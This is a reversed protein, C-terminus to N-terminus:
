RDHRMTHLAITHLDLDVLHIIDEMALHTLDETELVTTLLIYDMAIIAAIITTIRIESTYVLVRAIHITDMLATVM